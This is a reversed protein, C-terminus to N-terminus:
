LDRAMKERIRKRIQYVINRNVNMFSAIEKPKEELIIRRFLYMKEKENLTNLSEKIKEDSLYIPIGLIYADKSIKKLISEESDFLDKEAIIRNLDFYFLEESISVNGFILEKECYDIFRREHKIKKTLFTKGANVIVKCLYNIIIAALLEEKEMADRKESINM